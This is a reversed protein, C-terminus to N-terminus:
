QFKNLKKSPFLAWCNALNDQIKNTLQPVHLFMDRALKIDIPCKFVKFDM